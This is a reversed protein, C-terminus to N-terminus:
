RLVNRKRRSNDTVGVNLFIEGTAEDITVVDYQEEVSGVFSYHLKGEEGIDGDTAAVQGVLSGDAQNAEVTFTYMKSDFTPTFENVGLVNVRISAYSSFVGDSARVRFTYSQTDEYDINKTTSIDGSSDIRFPLCTANCNESHEISYSITDRNDPDSARVNLVLMRVDSNEVVSEIYQEKDFKPPLDNVNVIHITFTIYSRQVPFGDDRAEMTITYDNISGPSDVDLSATTSIVPQSPDLIDFPINGTSFISYFINDGDDDNAILEPTDLATGSTITEDVDYTIPTSPFVPAHSNAPHITVTVDAYTAQVHQPCLPVGSQQIAEIRFTHNGVDNSTAERGLTLTGKSGMDFLDNADTYYKPIRMMTITNYISDGEDVYNFKTIPTDPSHDVSIDLTFHSDDLVPPFNNVDQITVAVTMTGTRAPVGHDIALVTGEFEYSDEDFAFSRDIRIVGTWPDIKFQGEHWDSGLSYKVLTNPGIDRDTVLQPGLVLTDDPLLEYVTVTQRRNSFVPPNDNVDLVHVTLYTFASHENATDRAEIRLFYSDVDERDLNRRTTINGTDFHINFTDSPPDRQFGGHTGELLEVYYSLTGIDVDEAVIQIISNGVVTHPYEFVSISYNSKSFRPPNDNVDTVQIFVTTENQMPPTGSDRARITLNYSPIVERDLSEVLTVSGDSPDIEFANGINGASIVYTIEANQGSDDDVAEVTFLVRDTPQSESIKQTAVPLFHPENDNVDRVIINVLLFSSLRMGNSLSRAEIVLQYQSATEYDLQSNLVLNNRMDIGFMNKSANSYVLHYSDAVPQTSFERIIPDLKSDKSELLPIDITTDGNTFQPSEGTDDIRVQVTINSSMLPSGHDFARIVFVYTDNTILNVKNTVVGSESDIAFTSSSEEVISYGVTGQDGIDSDEALVTFLEINTYPVPSLIINTPAVTFVPAHDNGDEVIIRLTATSTRSLDSFNDIVRIQIEYYDIDEYNLSSQLTLLGTESDLTFQEYSGGFEYRLGSTGDEDTVVESADFIEYDVRVSESVREVYVPKTFRPHHDTESEVIIVVTADDFRDDGDVSSSVRIAASYSAQYDTPIENVLSVVGDESLSIQLGSDQTTIEYTFLANESSDSDSATVVGVSQSIDHGPSIYFFFTVQSFEPGNDNADDIFVMVEVSDFKAPDENDQAQVTLMFENASEHNIIHLASICESKKDISFLASEETFSYVVVGFDGHDIDQAEVCGVTAMEENNEMLNFTYEGQEFIPTEDNENVIEVTVRVPESTMAPEGTDTAIITLTYITESEYDLDQAIYVVGSKPNIHFTNNINGSSISYIVADNTANDADTAHVTFIATEIETNESISLTSDQTEFVPRQNNENLVIIFIQVEGSREGDSARLTVNLAPNNIYDVSSSLLIANNGGDWQFHTNSEEQILTYQLNDATDGDYAQITLVTSGVRANESMLIYLHSADFQPAHENVNTIQVTLTETSYRRPTGSDYAIIGVKYENMREYDIVESFICSSEYEQSCISIEGTQKNLCFIRSLSEDELAYEVVANEADDQDVAILSTFPVGSTIDESIRKTFSSNIFVPPYENVDEVTIIVTATSARNGGDVARVKFDYEPIAERDLSDVLIIRGTSAEM